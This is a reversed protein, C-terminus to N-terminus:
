IRKRGFFRSSEVEGALYKSVKVGSWARKGITPLIEFRDFHGAKVLVAFRAHRINFVRCMDGATLRLPLAQGVQYRGTLVDTPAQRAQPEGAPHQLVHDTAHRPM